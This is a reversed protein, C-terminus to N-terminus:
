RRKLALDGSFTQCQIVGEGKGYRGEITGGRPGNRRETTINLPLATALDGSHSTYSLDFSSEKGLLLVIDGSLSQTVLRCGKGCLGSWHFDGSTTELELQPPQGGTTGIEASGSVTKIRVAGAVERLKVDGSVSRVDARGATQVHIDGSVSKVHVDGGLGSISVDGSMTGLEVSSHRPLEVRVRGQRLSGHDDFEAHMGGEGQAVLRVQRADTDIATDSVQNGASPVIEVDASLTELRFTIPGKAPSTATVRGGQARAASSALLTTLLALWLRKM